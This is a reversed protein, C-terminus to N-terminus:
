LLASTHLAYLTDGWCLSAICLKIVSYKFRTAQVLLSIPASIELLWFFIWLRNNEVSWKVESCFVNKETRCCCFLRQLKWWKGLGFLTSGTTRVCKFYVADIYKLAVEGGEVTYCHRWTAVISSANRAWTEAGGMILVLINYKWWATVAYESIIIKLSCM